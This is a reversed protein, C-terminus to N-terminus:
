RRGAARLLRDAWAAADGALPPDADAAYDVRLDCAATVYSKNVLLQLDLPVDRDVSRLPVAILPLRTEVPFPWFSFQRPDDSRSADAHYAAGRAAEPVQERPVVASWTGTRLLNVEVFSAGARRWGDRWGTYQRRVTDDTRIEISTFHLITTIRDDRDFDTIRLFSESRRTPHRGCHDGPPHSDRFSVRAAMRPPLRPQLQDAAYVNMGIRLDGWLREIYPDMGPFPSPNPNAM